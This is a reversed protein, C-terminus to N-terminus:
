VKHYEKISERIGNLEERVCAQFKQLMKEVQEKEAIPLGQEGHLNEYLETMARHVGEAALHYQKSLQSKTM